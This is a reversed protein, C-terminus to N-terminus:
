DITSRTVDLAEMLDPMYGVPGRAEPKRRTGKKAATKDAQKTARQAPVAM